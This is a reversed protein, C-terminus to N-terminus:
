RLRRTRASIPASPSNPMNIAVGSRGDLARGALASEQSRKRVIGREQNGRDVLGVEEYAMNDTWNLDPTVPVVDGVGGRSRSDASKMDRITSYTAAAGSIFTFAPALTKGWQLALNTEGGPMEAAIDFGIGSVGGAFSALMSIVTLKSPTTGSRILSVASVVPSIGGLVNVGYGLINIVGKPSPLMSNSLYGVLDEGMRGSRDHRNVPDGGCYGYSHIGGHGFPSGGQDPSHFVGLATNYIRRGRGLFYWAPIPESPQGTFGTLPAGQPAARSGHLMYSIPIVGSMGVAVIPSALRDTALLKLAEM